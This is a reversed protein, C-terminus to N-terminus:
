GLISDVVKDLEGLKFAGARRYAVTGKRDVVVSYPLAGASNGIKRLLAFVSADAILLTYAIKYASAFELMKVVQDACIGVLQVGKPAYKRDFEVLLPVEERCPACWTAWFNLVLPKGLWQNLRQPRGAADPFSASLLDSAGSGIQLAMPGLLAGALAAAVGVGGLM